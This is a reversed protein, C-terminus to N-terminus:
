FLKEPHNAFPADIKGGADITELRTKFEGSIKLLNSQAYLEKLAIVVARDSPNLKEARMFYPHAKKVYEQFKATYAKYEKDAGSIPLDSRLKAYRVAENYYLAGMSYIVDSYEADKELAINYYQEAKGMFEAREADNKADKMMNDYTNGLVSYLSKNEPDKEIAIKLREELEKTKGKKLFYNIESYLLEQDEPFAKRGENLYGFAKEEDSDIYSKFLGNYINATKKGSDLLKKFLEAAEKNKGAATALFATASVHESYKDKQEGTKPDIDVGALPDATKDIPLVIDRVVLVMNFGNYAGLYDGKEYKAAGGNWFEFAVQQLNKAAAVQQFKKATEHSLATKNAVFAEDLAGEVKVTSEPNAALKALELYINGKKLWADAQKKPDIQDISKIAFDIQEKAELLKDGNSQPNQNYTAYLTNAKRVAKAPDEQGYTVGVFLLAVVLSLGLQKVNMIIKIITKFNFIFKM